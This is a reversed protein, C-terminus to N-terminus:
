LLESAADSEAGADSEATTSSIHDTILQLGSM